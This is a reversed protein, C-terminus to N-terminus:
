NAKYSYYTGLGVFNENERIEDIIANAEDGYDRDPEITHTNEVSLLNWQYKALYARVRDVFESESPAWMAINMFGLVCGSPMDGPNVGVEATTMWMKLMM